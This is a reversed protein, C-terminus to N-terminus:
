LQFGTNKGHLLKCSSGLWPLGNEGNADFFLPDIAFTLNKIDFPDNKTVRYTVSQAKLELSFSVTFLILGIYLIRKM